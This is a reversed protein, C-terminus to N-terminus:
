DILEVKLGGVRVGEGDKPGFPGGPRPRQALLEDVARSDLVEVGDSDDVGSPGRYLRVPRSAMRAEASSGLWVTVAIVLLMAHGHGQLAYVAMLVAVLKAVGAAIRTATEPGLRMALVARLVRGGDMPLAPLLNFSGMVLNTFLLASLLSSPQGDIQGLRLLPQGLATMAGFCLAALAFNVAPGALAVLLQERPRKPMGELMAVGGIPYLTIHLTRIGFHRATLAHGYEHLVVLCFLAVMFLLSFFVAPGSHTESYTDFAVLGLLFLFTAHVHVDIGFMRGLKYSWKM